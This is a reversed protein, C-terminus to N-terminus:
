PWLKPACFKPMRSFISAKGTLVGGSTGIFHIETNWTGWNLIKIKQTRQEMESWWIKLFFISSTKNFLNFKRDTQELYQNTSVLCHLVHMSFHLEPCIYTILYFLWLAWGDPTIWTFFLSMWYCYHQPIFSFSTIPKSHAQFYTSCYIVSTM